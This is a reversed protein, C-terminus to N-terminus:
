EKILKSQMAQFALMITVLTTLKSPKSLYKSSHYGIVALKKMSVPQFSDETIVM